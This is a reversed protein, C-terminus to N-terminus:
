GRLCYPIALPKQQLGRVHITSVAGVAAGGNLVAGFFAFFMLVKDLRDATSFLNFYSIDPYNSVDEAPKTQAEPKM